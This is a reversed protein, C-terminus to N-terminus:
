IKYGELSALSISYVANVITQPIGNRRLCPFQSDIRFRKCGNFRFVYQDYEERYYYGQLLLLNNFLEKQENDTFHKEIATVLSNLTIKGPNTDSTKDFIVVVLEGLGQNDLQEISSIKVDEAGSVTTKVEYWKDPFIFDQDAKDPGIWSKLSIDIGYEEFLYKYLFYLEGLLGKVEAFTLLGDPRRKLMKQWQVYRECVFGTGYDKDSIWRSSEIIDECFRCFIDKYSDDLLSFSIAWKKDKRKAIYISIIQSSKLLMPQKDSLLLLTSKGVANTGLYFDLIHTNDIRTFANVANNDTFFNEIFSEMM